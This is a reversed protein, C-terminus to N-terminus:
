STVEGCAPIEAGDLPRPTLMVPVEFSQAERVVTLRIQDGTNAELMLYFLLEDMSNVNVGNVAVIIDGGACVRRGRVLVMRDGGHLGAQAAPSDAAVGAILVGSRVTLNLPEALGAVGFGTDAAISGVGLWPYDIHGQERLEPIVRHITNVPVAFGVGQFGGNDTSIATTIGIVEGYSNLLPGGSSGPNVVADIQIIAPNRFASASSGLLAASALQRGLGSIIGVSMSSTLGFPNGIAIARQGVHLDDSNGLPLPYLHAADVTVHLLALDTFSDSGLLAAAAVYGDHFTVQISHANQILHANTVIHGEGDIVFGSGSSAEENESSLGDRVVDVNVVSPASREYLNTLLQYEADAAAIVAPPIATPIPYPSPVGSNLVVQVAPTGVLVIMSEAQTRPLQCGALVLLLVLWQAV